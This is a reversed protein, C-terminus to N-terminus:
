KKKAPKAELKALRESLEDLVSKSEGRLSALDSKLKALDPGYDVVALPAPKLYETVMGINTYGTYVLLAVSLAALWKAIATWTVAKISDLTPIWSSPVPSNPIDTM